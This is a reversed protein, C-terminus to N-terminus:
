SSANEAADLEARAEIKRVAIAECPTLKPFAYFPKVSNLLEALAGAQEALKMWAEKEPRSTLDLAHLILDNQLATRDVGGHIGVAEMAAEIGDTLQQVASSTNAFACYSMNPNSGLCDLNLNCPDNGHEDLTKEHLSSLTDIEHTM